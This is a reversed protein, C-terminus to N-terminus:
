QPERVVLCGQGRDRLARCVKEPAAAEGFPGARLRHVRTTSDGRARHLSLPLASALQPFRERFRTKEAAARTATSLSALQLWHSEAIDRNSRDLRTQLARKAVAIVDDLGDAAARDDRRGEGAESAASSLALAAALRLPEGNARAMLADLREAAPVPPKRDPKPPQPLANDEERGAATGARAPPQNRPRTRAATQRLQGAPDDRRTEAATEDRAAGTWASRLADYYALNEQVAKGDLDRRAVAAARDRRGALGYALALNQRTKATAEPDRAAKRLIALGAEIEGAFVHSLGLNNRLALNGPAATLGAKYSAQAQTHRAQLDLAVGKALHGRHNDPADAILRNLVEVAADPRDASTLARGLGLRAAQSAPDRKLAARYSEVADRPRGMAMLARGLGLRPAAAEPAAKAAERYFQVAAGYQGREHSRAALHRMRAEDASATDKPAGSRPPEAGSGMCGSIALM